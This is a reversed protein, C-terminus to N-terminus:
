IRELEQHINYDVVTGPFKKRKIINKNDLVIKFKFTNKIMLKKKGLDKWIKKRERGM